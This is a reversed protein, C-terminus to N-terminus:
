WVKVGKFWIKPPDRDVTNLLCNFLGRLEVTGGVVKRKSLVEARSERGSIDAADIFPISGISEKAFGGGEVIAPRAVTSARHELQKSTHSRGVEKTDGHPGFLIYRRGKFLEDAFDTSRDSKEAVVRLRFQGASDFVDETHVADLIGLRFGTVLM